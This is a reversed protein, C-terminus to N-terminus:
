LEVVKRRLVLVRAAVLGPLTCWAALPAVWAAVLVFLAVSGLALPYTFLVLASGHRLAVRARWETIGLHVLAALTGLGIGTLVAVWANM